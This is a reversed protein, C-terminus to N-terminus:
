GQVPTSHSWIWNRLRQPSCLLINWGTNMVKKEEENTKKDVPKTQSKTATKSETQKHAIQSVLWDLGEYM